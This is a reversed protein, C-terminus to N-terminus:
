GKFKSGNTGIVRVYDKQQVEFRDILFADVRVEHIPSEDPQGRDSGMQFRGAPIKVMEMGATTTVIGPPEARTAASQEVRKCSPVLLIAAILLWRPDKAILSVNFPKM